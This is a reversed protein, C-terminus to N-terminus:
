KKQLRGKGIMQLFFPNIPGFIVLSCSIKQTGWNKPFIGLIHMKRMSPKGLNGNAVHGLFTRYLTKVKKIHSLISCPVIDSWLIKAKCSPPSDTESDQLLLSALFPIIAAIFGVSLVNLLESCIEKCLSCNPPLVTKCASWMVNLPCKIM